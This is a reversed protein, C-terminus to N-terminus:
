DPIQQLVYIRGDPARVWFWAWEGFAPNDFAEAAWVPENVLDLGAAQAEAMAERIDDVVFAIVFDAEDPILRPDSHTESYVEVLDREHTPLRQFTVAEDGSVAELGLVDRLFRTMGEVDSTRLGVYGVRKVQV